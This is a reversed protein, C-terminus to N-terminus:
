VLGRSEGATEAAGPEARDLADRPSPAGQLLDEYIDHFHKEIESIELCEEFLKRGGRGVKEALSRDDLLCRLGEALSEADRIRVLIANERDRLIDPHAGVATAVVPVGHSLAEV